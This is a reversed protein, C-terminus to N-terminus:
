RQGHARLCRMQIRVESFPLRPFWSPSITVQPPRALEYTEELVKVAEARPKGAILKTAESVDLKATAYGYAKVYFTFAGPGVDEEASEGYEFSADTLVYGPPLEEALKHYAVAQVDAVKVKQATVLLRLSLGLTDSKEGVLHTYAQKPVAQVAMTQRPLFEGPQLYQESQLANYAKAMVQAAALKWVRDRDAQSVVAVAQNEAGSIPDPNTVRVAFGAVGEVLNVQYAGVNGQPGEEMAQVPVPSQGFAPITVDQTTIFRVPYSGASTRVVTGAPVRYDQGLLNTLLVTGHARGSVSYGRGTTGTEAYAEFEDGIRTAPIVGRQLDVSEAQPDVSIPVILSYAKSQPVVTVAASPVVMAGMGVVVLLVALLVTGEIGWLWAPRHQGWKFRPRRPEEAWLPRRPREPTRDARLPPFAGHKELYAQAAEESPFVKFGVERTLPRLEPDSIAWAAELGRRAVERRLVQFDLPLTWGRTVDWPLVLLVRAETTRRLAERVTYRDDTPTIRIIDM